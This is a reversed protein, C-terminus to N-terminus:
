SCGTEGTKKQRETRVKKRREEGEEIDRQWEPIVAKWAARAKEAAVPDDPPLQEPPPDYHMHIQLMYKLADVCIPDLEFARKLHPLAEYPKELDKFLLVGLWKHGITEKPAAKIYARIEREAEAYIRRQEEPDTERQAVIRLCNGLRLRVQRLNNASGAPRHGADMLRLVERYVPVAETFKSQNALCLGLQWRWVPNKPELKIM